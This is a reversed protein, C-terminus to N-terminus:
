QIQMHENILIALFIKRTLLSKEGYLNLLSIEGREKERKEAHHVPGISHMAGAELTPLNQVFMRVKELGFFFHKETMVTFATLSQTIHNM